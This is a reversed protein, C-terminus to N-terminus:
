QQCLVLFFHDEKNNKMAACLAERIHEPCGPLECLPMAPSSYKYYVPEPRNTGGLLFDTSVGFHSGILLLTQNDPSRKGSEYLSVTSEALNLMSGLQSQTLFHEKRLLRLRKGLVM